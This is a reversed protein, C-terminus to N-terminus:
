VEAIWAIATGPREQHLRHLGCAKAAEVAEEFEERTIRRDLPPYKFAKWCPRYQDMINVYTDKSLEDALFRMVEVTGALGGPLVLHRVLVGRVALGREDIVLDGTQRHMEKIATKAIEPYGPVKSYKLAIEADAYKFDPLYIDVIGDLLRLTELEDYSSTNYVLPIRLGKRAALLLGELIQPVQHSPTVLNINYCGQQELSLMMGALEQASVERGQRWQSIEYNQCYVCRLNCSAFFITGSGNWGRLPAEEGHHPGYSSVFPKAGVLCFGLDGELRDIACHRPCVHCRRLRERAQAVRDALEGTELLSCYSAHKQGSTLKM